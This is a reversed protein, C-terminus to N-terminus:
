TVPGPAAKADSTRSWVQYLRRLKAFRSPPELPEDEDRGVGARKLIRQLTRRHMGLIKATQMTNRDNKEWHALVHQLRVESPEMISEPLENPNRAGGTLAQVLAEVDVPKTLCDVAGLKMARVASSPTAYGSLLVARTEPSRASLYEFVEFGSDDALHLDVVAFVPSVEDIIAKAEAVTVATFIEYGLRGMSRGLVRVFPADDDVILLTMCSKAENNRSMYAKRVCLAAPDGHSRKVPGSAARRTIEITRVCADDTFDFHLLM